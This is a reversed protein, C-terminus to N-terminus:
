RHQDFLLPINTVRAGLFLEVKTLAADDLGAGRL